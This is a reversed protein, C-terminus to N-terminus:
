PKAPWSLNLVWLLLLCGALKGPLGRLYQQMAGGLNSKSQGSPGDALRDLWRGSTNAGGAGGDEGERPRDTGAAAAQNGVGTALPISEPQVSNAPPPNSTPLTKKLTGCIWATLM